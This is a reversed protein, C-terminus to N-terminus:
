LIWCSENEVHLDRCPILLAIHASVRGSIWVQVTVNERSLLKNKSSCCTIFKHACYFLIEIWETNM